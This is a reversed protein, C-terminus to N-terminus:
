FNPFYNAITLCSGRVLESTDSKKEPIYGRNNQNINSFYMLNERLLDQGKKDKKKM